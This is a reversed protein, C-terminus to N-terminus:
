YWAAGAVDRKEWCRIYGNVYGLTGQFDTRETGYLCTCVREFCNYNFGQLLLTSSLDGEGACKTACDSEDEVDYYASSNSEDCQTHDGLSVWESNSSEIEDPGMGESDICKQQYCQLPEVYGDPAVVDTKSGTWVADTVKTTRRDYCKNFSSSPGRMGFPNIYVACNGPPCYMADEYGPPLAGNAASASLFLVTVSQLNM